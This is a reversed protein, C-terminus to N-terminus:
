FTESPYQSVNTLRLTLISRPLDTIHYIDNNYHTIMVYIKIMIQIAVSSLLIPVHPSVNNVGANESHRRTACM